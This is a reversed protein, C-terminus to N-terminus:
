ESGCLNKNVILAFTRYNIDTCMDQVDTLHPRGVM